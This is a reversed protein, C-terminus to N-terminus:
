CSRSVRRGSRLRCAVERTCAREEAAKKRDELIIEEVKKALEEGGNAKILARMMEALSSLGSKLGQVEGQVFGSLGNLTEEVAKLRDILLPPQKKTENSM